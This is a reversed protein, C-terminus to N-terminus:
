SGNEESVLTVTISNRRTLYEQAARRIDQPTVSQLVKFYRRIDRPDGTLNYFQCLRYAVSSATELELATRYRLRQQIRALEAAGPLEEALTTLSEYIEGRLIEMDGPDKLTAEVTFLFPDVMRPADADLAHARMTEEVWRRYLPSASGFVLERIIELAVTDTDDLSFAPTRFGVIIRPSIPEPWTVAARRVETQAPEAPIEPATAGPEWEAYQKRILRKTAALDFDGVVVIACNDPRYYANFFQRSYDYGEPMGRVDAEFGMVTHRYTHREFATELLKEEILTGPEARGINF